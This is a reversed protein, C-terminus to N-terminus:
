VPGGDPPGKKTESLCLSVFDAFDHSNRVPVRGRESKASLATLLGAHGGRALLFGNSRLSAV